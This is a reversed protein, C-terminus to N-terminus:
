ALSHVKQTVRRQKNENDTVLSVEFSFCFHQRMLNNNREIVNMFQLKQNKVGIKKDGERKTERGRERVGKQWIGKGSFSM